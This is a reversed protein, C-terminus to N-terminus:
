AVLALNIEDLLAEYKDGFLEYFKGLGGHDVFPALDLIHGL